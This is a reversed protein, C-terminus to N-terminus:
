FKNRIKRIIYKIILKPLFKLFKNTKIIKDKPLITLFPNKELLRVEYKHFRGIRHPIHGMKIEEESWNDKMGVLGYGKRIITIARESPDDSFEPHVPIVKPEEYMKIHMFYLNSFAEHYALAKNIITNIEEHSYSKVPKRIRVEGNYLSYDSHFIANRLERDFIDELPFITQGLNIRNAAEKLKDIKESPSQPIKYRGRSKDPFNDIIFRGGSVVNILNALIEYPESAEIIHGYLLLYIHRITNFDRVKNKIKYICRFVELTNEYPDWGPDQLGRVRLLTLIFEFECTEKAKEFLPDLNNLYKIVAEKYIPNFRKGKSKWEWIGNKNKIVSM